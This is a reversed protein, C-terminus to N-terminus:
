QHSTFPFISVPIKIFSWTGKCPRVSPRVRDKWMSKIFCLLGLNVQLEAPRYLLKGYIRASNQDKKGNELFFTLIRVKISSLQCLLPFSQWAVERHLICSIDHLGPATPPSLKNLIYFSGSGYYTALTIYIWKTLRLSYYSWDLYFLQEPNRLHRLTWYSTWQESETWAMYPM